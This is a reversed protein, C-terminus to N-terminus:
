LMEVYQEVLFLIPHRFFITCLGGLAIFPGFPMEQGRQKRGSAMLIIGTIGGTLVAIILAAVTWFPGTFFGIVIALKFDGFGIGERRFFLRGLFYMFLLVLLGAIAGHMARWFGFVGWQLSIAMGAIMAPYTLLNPIIMHEYDIFAAALLILALLADVAFQFTPGHMAYLVAIMVGTVIEVAPYRLSIRAECHRCRGRLIIYSLIPINDYWAIPSDCVPCHSGPSVVSERLPLRYIVVNLFSGLATGFLFAIAAYMFMYPTM